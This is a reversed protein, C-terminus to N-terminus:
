VTANNSARHLNQLWSEPIKARQGPGILPVPKGDLMAQHDGPILLWLGPIGDSRGVKQSLRSLLDMQEYRALLGPYIVLATREIRLLQEEIAPMAGRVLMLLKDWDGHNPTADTQLVLEWNVKKAASIAQLADLFLGELDVLQLPFRRCLEKCAQEFRKPNVLLALFAGEKLSRQLREEFQRADAEEPSIEGAPTPTFATPLRRPTESGSTVSDHNRHPLIYGSVGDKANVEWRFEFGAERLLDDLAPRAPLPAAEPYRGIVRERIQEETAFHLNLLAGQSLKLARLPPMGRVYLEQRSSVAAHQSAAAALRLLRADPLLTDTPPAIERLRELVRHPALLPDEIALRDALTGLRQAYEALEINSAILISPGERRVLVRPQALLRETEVAARLVAGTLQTRRPEDHTSGRAVLLAEVLEAASMVGGQGAIFEVVDTRLRTIAPDKSLRNALVCGASGGGVIVYDYTETHM